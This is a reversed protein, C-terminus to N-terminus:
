QTKILLHKSIQRLPYQIEGRGGGGGRHEDINLILNKLYFHNHLNEVVRNIYFPLFYVILQDFYHGNM